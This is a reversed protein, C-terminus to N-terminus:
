PEILRNRIAYRILQTRDHLDLKRMLNVKHSDVTKVSLNLRRAVDKMSSAEALLILVERERDTLFEYRSRTRDPREVYHRVLGKAVKPSLYTEGRCIAQLAYLLQSRPADKLIYGSAGADLCRAVLDEEALVTLMLIGVKADFKRIRQVAEFGSLLPMAVDMLIIDPRLKRAIEVAQKGNEAEGAVEFHPTELLIARVGDRFLPHDDCLLVRVKPRM